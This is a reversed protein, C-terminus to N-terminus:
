ASLDETKQELWTIEEASLEIEFVAYNDRFEQPTQSGIIAFTNLGQQLVYALSLQALSFSKKEALIKARELRQFNNEYAYADVTVKAFYDTFSDLNDPSFKGTMFGGALSSWTFLPMQNAQYWAKAADNAGISICGEWAPKVMDALSFQPSSVRIPQLNNAEAYQNAEQIREHSWNSVGYAHIRGAQYHANLCDILAEVPKTPNDRHLVYLDIYDTQLRELSEHVDSDIHAPTVRVQGDYPHAGKDMIVVEERFGREKIWQGLVRESKGMGYGHATDFTNCGAAFAADFLAFAIDTEEPSFYVTGQVLRSIPKKINTVQGYQM